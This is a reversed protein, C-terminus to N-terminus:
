VHLQLPCWLNMPCGDVLHRQLKVMCMAASSYPM